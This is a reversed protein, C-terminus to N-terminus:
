AAEALTVRSGNPHAESAAILDALRRAVSEPAALAAPDADPMADRHMRTDMEGPDVSLFRVGSGQLEAAWTRILQDLAAKSVGYGGWRPYGVVGADSSIALVLGRRRLAMQGLLAKTLRFPGLLNTELVRALDECETQALNRLPLAGLESANHVLVDIPGLLACAAGAMPYVAHKDAVDGVLAHADGGEARLREVQRLLEREGRAVLAVRAGRRLLEAGLAAGLGRSAGTVLATAGRLEM